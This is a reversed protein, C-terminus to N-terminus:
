RGGKKKGRRGRLTTPMGAAAVTPAVGGPKVQGAAVAAALKEKEALEKNFEELADLGEVESGPVWTPDDYGVWKVYYRYGRGCPRRDIIKEVFYEEEGDEFILPPPPEVKRGFEDKDRAPLLKSVHFTPHIGMTAPLDLTFAVDSVKKTITYPGLYRPLLKRNNPAVMTINETSLLVKDGVEFHHDRRDKDGYHKYRLQASELHQKASEIESARKKALDVADSRHYKVSDVLDIPALPEYGFNLLFASKGTSSQKMSNFAFEAMPLIDEWSDPRQGVYHRLMDEITRNTRESQGDTEPHDATSMNLKIGLIEAWARFFEARFKM